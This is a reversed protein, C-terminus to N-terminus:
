KCGLWERLYLIATFIKIKVLFYSASSNGDDKKIAM